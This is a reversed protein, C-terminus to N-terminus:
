ALTALTEGADVAQGERVAVKEVTGDRPARMENEMKMAEVVVLGQGATVAAGPAVLVKVVKGPMPSRVELPGAKAGGRQAAAQMLLQRRADILRVPVTVDGVHVTLDAGDGELDILAAAGDVILSWSAGGLSCADVVRSRGDITVEVQGGEEDGVVVEVTREGVQAQYRRAM